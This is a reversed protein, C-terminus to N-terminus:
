PPWPCPPGTMARAGLLMPPVGTPNLTALIATFDQINIWTSNAGRGPLLDWRMDFNPDNPSTGFKRPTATMSTADQLTVVSITNNPPPPTYLDSPWGNNGCSDQNGTGIKFQQESFAGVKAPGGSCGDNVVADEFDDDNVGNWCLPADAEDRDPYGDGDCDFNLPIAGEDAITDGDDDVGQFPGDKREPRLLSPTSGSCVAAAEDVDFVGDNDDDPDNADLVGDQDDDLDCVDGLGNPTLNDPLLNGYSDWRPHAPPDYDAQAPNYDNPCNDNPQFVRDLDNDVAIVRTIESICACVTSHAQIRLLHYGWPLNAASLSYGSYLFQQGYIAAVDPREEHYSAEGLSTTGGIPAGNVNSLTALAGVSDVVGGFSREIAWGNITFPQDLVAPVGPPGSGPYDLATVQLSPHLFGSFHIDAHSGGHLYYDSHNWTPDLAGDDLDRPFNRAQSCMLDRPDAVCDDGVHM